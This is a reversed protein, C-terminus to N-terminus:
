EQEDVEDHENDHEDDHEDNLVSSMGPSEGIVMGDDVSRGPQSTSGDTADVGAVGAVGAGPEAPDPHLEKGLRLLRLVMAAFGVATGVLLGYPATEWRSDVWYGFGGAVLVSGIAEFAGQYAESGAAAAARKVRRRGPYDPPQSM